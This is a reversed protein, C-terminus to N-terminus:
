VVWPLPQLWVAQAPLWPQQPFLVQPNQSCPQSFWSVSLRPYCAMEGALKRNPIYRHQSAHDAHERIFYLFVPSLGQRNM